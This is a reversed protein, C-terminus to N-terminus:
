SRSIKDPLFPAFRKTINELILVDKECHDVIYNLSKEDHSFMAPMWEAMDLKTKGPLEPESIRILENITDMRRRSTNVTRKITFYMDLHKMKPLPKLGQYIARTRLMPVDFRSGFYTIIGDYLSLCETIDRIVRREAKLMDKGSLDIVFPTPDEEIGYTKVVGALVIDFDGKLGTTELDFVAVKYVDPDLFLDSRASKSKQLIKIDAKTFVPKGEILRVRKRRLIEEAYCAYCKAM